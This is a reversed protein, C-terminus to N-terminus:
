QYIIFAGSNYTLDKCKINKEEEFYKRLALKLVSVGDRSNNGKGCVIEIQRVVDFIPLVRENVREIAEDVHQGHFDVSYMEFGNTKKGVFMERNMRITNIREFLDNSANVKAEQEKRKLELLKQELLHSVSKDKTSRIQTKVDHIEEKLARVPARAEEYMTQKEKSSLFEKQDILSALNWLNDEVKDLNFDHKLLFDVVLMDFRKQSFNLIENYIRFSDCLNRSVFALAVSQFISKTLSLNCLPCRFNRDQKKISENNNTHFHKLLCKICCADNCPLIAAIKNSVFESWSTTCMPCEINNTAKTIM